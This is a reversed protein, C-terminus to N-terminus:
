SATVRKDGMGPVLAVLAMGPLSMLFSIGFFTGYGLWAALFGSLVGAYLGSVSMLGTGIAYHAAKYDPKCLRMLYTMLIATGLGGAFQDFGHVVIVAMLNASGIPVPTAAGTNVALYKALFLALVMYVINTINQAWLFLWVMRRLGHRGILSGGLMAGAISAPLGVGGSIWGYHVKIGLDVMFPAAMASLMFEGTRILIIFAIIAGIRERDMFSVFARAYFSDPDRYILGQLRKRFLAVLILSLFLLLGIWAPFNFQELVPLRAQLGAYFESALLGRLGAVGLALTAAAVVVKLRALSRVLDALPKGPTECRPLCFWHFLYFGAMLFGASLFAPFWGVTTGITVIVGTGTMMAIRYAMVRYGIFKSQGAADLAEMYYGDIAIDHTAAIFSGIFFLVAIAQIASALPVMFATALFLLVLLGQMVLMWQRKTGFEDVHPGWLFKLIWPLGFLSTLGIGELSMGRDRFFVSSITRIISYPFGETFYTTFSWLYPNATLRGKNKPPTDM